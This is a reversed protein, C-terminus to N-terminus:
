TGQGQAHATVIQKAAEASEQPEGLLHPTPLRVWAQYSPKM